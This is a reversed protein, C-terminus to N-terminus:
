HGDEGNTMECAVAIAIRHREAFMAHHDPWALAIILPNDGALEGDRWLGSVKSRNVVHKAVTDADGPEAACAPFKDKLAAHGKIVRGQRSEGVDIALHLDVGAAHRKSIAGVVQRVQM